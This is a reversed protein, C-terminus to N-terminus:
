LIPVLIIVTLPLIHYDIKLRHPGVQWHQFM